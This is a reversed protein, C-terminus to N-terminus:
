YKVKPAYNRAVGSELEGIAKRDKGKYDIEGLLHALAGLEALRKDDCNIEFWPAYPTHTRSLTEAEAKAYEDYLKASKLELETLRLRGLPDNKQKELRASLEEKGITLMYKYIVFGDEYLAQEFLPIQHIYREYEDASCRGIARELTAKRYWGRDFAAIEGSRPLRSVFNAFYWKGNQATKQRAVRILSADLKESLARIAGGKGTLEGGEFLVILRSKSEFIWKQLKLLEIQLTRLREQYYDAKLKGKKNLRATDLEAVNVATKYSQPM